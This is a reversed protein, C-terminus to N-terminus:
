FDELIMVALRDHFFGVDRKVLNQYHCVFQATISWGGKLTMVTIELM